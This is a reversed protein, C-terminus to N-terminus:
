RALVYKGPAADGAPHVASDLSSPAPHRDGSRAAVWSAWPEWWSGQVAETKALWEDPDAETAQAISVSMKPNGPPNVLSQIHGSSSLAFRSEGGLLRTTAYCAKWATLHDNRAGVVFSDCEVKSLDIPNGHVSWGGNALKNHMFLELFDAHLAAPLRTPDSNWAMVDFTALDEGLLNNNVWYNWILDNPRLLAFLANAHSGRLVGRRETTRRTHDVITQEGLLGIMTPVSFDLLTVAFTACRILSDQVSALYGLLAATTIGGACLSVTNAQDTGTIECAARVAEDVADVYANLGWERQEKTPNRWSITFMQLGQKVCFEVFSRGPALDMFYYKNIQPPVLILPITSVNDTMPTYQLLECVENRFVVAGPTVALNRGVEFAARDVYRPFGHNTVVDRTVNGLGRLVSKGGTEFARELVAPNLLPYNTPALASTVVTAALKARENTRWDFHADDVLELATRTCALYSQCLRHFAPNEKWARNEFRWDRAEPAISSRGVAVKTMEVGLGVMRRPLTSTATRAGVQMLAGAFGLPDVRRLLRRPGLVRGSRESTLRRVM